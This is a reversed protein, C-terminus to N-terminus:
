LNAQHLTAQSLNARNLVANILQTRTLNAASMNAERLNKRSLDQDSLAAAALDCRQCRRDAPFEASRSTILPEPDANAPTETPQHRALQHRAVRITAPTVALFLVLLSVIINWHM